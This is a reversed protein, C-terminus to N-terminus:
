QVVKNGLIMIAHGSVLLWCSFKMTFLELEESGALVILRKNWKRFSRQM